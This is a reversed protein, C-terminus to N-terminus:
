HEGYTTAYRDELDEQGGYGGEFDRDFPENPKADKQSAANEEGGGPNESKSGEEESRKPLSDRIAALQEAEQNIVLLTSTILLSDSCLTLEHNRQNNM